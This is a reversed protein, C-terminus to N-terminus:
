GGRRKKKVESSDTKKAGDVILHVYSSLGATVIGQTIITFIATAIGARGECNCTALVYTACILISIVGNILPIYQDKIVRSQRMWNEVFYLAVAVILLEPKVYEMVFEM